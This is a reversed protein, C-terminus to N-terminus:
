PAEHEYQASVVAKKELTMATDSLHLSHAIFDSSRGWSVERSFHAKQLSYELDYDQM